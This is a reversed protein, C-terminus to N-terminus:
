DDDEEINYFDDIIKRLNSTIKGPKDSGCILSSVALGTVGTSMVLPATELDIGGIAVTPINGLEHVLSYIGEIGLVERLDSKTSTTAFPGIGAYDAYTKAINCDNINNCSYGIKLNPFEKKIIEPFTDKVGVHCGYAGTENALKYDDNIYFLINKHNHLKEQIIRINEENEKKLININDINSKNYKNRYQIATVGSELVEDLFDKINLKLMSPELVLYLKYNNKNEM